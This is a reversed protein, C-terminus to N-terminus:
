QRNNYINLLRIQRVPFLGMPLFASTPYYTTSPEYYTVMQLIRHVILWSSIIIFMGEKINQATKTSGSTAKKIHSIRWSLRLPM